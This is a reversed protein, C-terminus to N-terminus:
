KLIQQLITSYHRNNNDIASSTDTTVTKQTVRTDTAPRYHRNNNDIAKSTDTTETKQLVRTDTIIM